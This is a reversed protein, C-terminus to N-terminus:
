KAISSGRLNPSGGRQYPKQVAPKAPGGRSFPTALYGLEGRFRADFGAANQDTLARGPFTSTATDFAKRFQGRM